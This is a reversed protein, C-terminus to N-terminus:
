QPIEGAHAGLFEMAWKLVVDKKQVSQSITSKTLPETHKAVEIAQEITARQEPTVMFEMECDLYDGDDEPMKLTESILKKLEKSSIKPDLAATKLTQPLVLAYDKAQRLKTAKTIGITEMEAPTFTDMLDRVTLFYQQLQGPSRKAKAAVVKLYERFSDHRVRWYQMEAVELLMLGIHAYGREIGAETLAMLYAKEDIEKLLLDGDNMTTM